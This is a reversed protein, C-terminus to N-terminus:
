EASINDAPPLGRKKRREEKRERKAAREALREEETPVPPRAEIPDGYPAIIRNVIHPVQKSTRWGSSISVIDGTRLSSQPDHVLV